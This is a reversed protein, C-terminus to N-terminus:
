RRAPFDALARAIDEDMREPNRISGDQNFFAPVISRWALEPKRADIIDILLDGPAYRDVRTMGMYAGWWPKYWNLASWQEVAGPVAPAGHAHLVFQVKDFQLWEYGRRTLQANVAERLAHYNAPMLQALDGPLFPGDFWRFARYSRFDMDTNRDSLIEGTSGGSCATIALVLMAALLGRRTTM